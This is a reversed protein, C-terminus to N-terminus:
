KRDPFLDWEHLCDELSETLLDLSCIQFYRFDPSQYRQKKM